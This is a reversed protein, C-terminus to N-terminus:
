TQQCYISCDYKGGIHQRFIVYAYFGNEGKCINNQRRLFYRDRHRCWELKYDPTMWGAYQYPITIDKKGAEKLWFLDSKVEKMHQTDFFPNDKWNRM